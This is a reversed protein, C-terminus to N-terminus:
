LKGTNFFSIYSPHEKVSSVIELKELEKLLEYYKIPSKKTANAGPIGSGRKVVQPEVYTLYERVNEPLIIKDRLLYVMFDIIVQKEKISEKKIINAIRNLSLPIKNAIVKNLWETEDEVALNDRAFSRDVIVNLMKNELLELGELLENETFTISDKFIYATEEDHKILQIKATGDLAHINELTVPISNNELLIAFTNESMFDVYYWKFFAFFKINTETVNFSSENVVEQMFKFPEVIITDNAEKLSHFEEVMRRIIQPDQLHKTVNEVGYNVSLSINKLSCEYKDYKFAAKIFESDNIEILDDVLYSNKHLIALKLQRDMKENNLIRVLMESSEHLTDFESLVRVAVEFHQELNNILHNPGVKFLKSLSFNEETEQTFHIFIDVLNRKNIEYLDHQLTLDFEEAMLTPVGADRFAIPFTQFIKQFRTIDGLEQERLKSMFKPILQIEKRLHSDDKMAQELSRNDCSYFLREIFTEKDTVAKFHSSIKEFLQTNHILLQHIFKKTNIPSEPLLEALFKAKLGDDIRFLFTEVLAKQEELFTDSQFIHLIIRRDLVTAKKYDNISLTHLALESNQFEDDESLAINAKIKQIIINDHRSLANGYFYSIYKEYGENIYGESLLYVLLLYYEPSSDKLSDQLHTNKKMIDKVTLTQVDLLEKQLLLIENVLIDKEAALMPVYDDFSNIGVIHLAHRKQESSLNTFAGNQNIYQITITPDLWEAIVDNNIPFLQRTHKGAVVYERNQHKPLINDGILYLVAALAKKFHEEDAIELKKQIDKIKNDLTPRIDDIIASKKEHFIDFLTGEGSQLKSFDIPQVNKYVVMAFLQKTDLYDLGKFSEKYVIFENCINHLLRLDDIYIAIDSLYSEMESGLEQEEESEKSENLISTMMPFLYERSNSADVVPIIPLIFDFFKTRLYESTEKGGKDANEVEFMSDKLAYIFRVPQNVQKSSNLLYNLERLNEFIELNNFRDIDEIIVVEAGSTEFYYLIEDLYNSFYSDENEKHEFTVSSISLKSLKFTKTLLQLLFFLYWVAMPLFLIAAFRRISNTITFWDAFVGSFMTNQSLILWGIILATIAITHQWFRQTPIANIRKFRSYPLNQKYIIQKVLSKELLQWANLTTIGPNDDNAFSALSLNLYEYEKHRDKFTLLLSTKGSGYSGMVAINQNEPTELAEKLAELYVEAKPLDKEDLIAPALSKFRRTKPIDEKKNRSKGLLHFDFNM